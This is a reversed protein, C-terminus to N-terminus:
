SLSVGLRDSRQTALCNPTLWGVTALTRFCNSPLPFIQSATVFQLAFNASISSKPFPRRGKSQTMPPTVPRRSIDIIRVAIEM